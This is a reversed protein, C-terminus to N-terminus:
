TKDSDHGRQYQKGKLQSFKTTTAKGSKDQKKNRITIEKIPRHANPDKSPPDVIQVHVIYYTHSTVTHTFSESALTRLSFSGKEWVVTSEWHSSTTVERKMSEECLNKKELLLWLSQERMGILLFWQTNQRKEEERVCMSLKSNQCSWTRCTLFPPFEIMKLSSVFRWTKKIQTVINRQWKYCWWWWEM